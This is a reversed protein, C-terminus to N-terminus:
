LEYGITITLTKIKQYFDSSESYDYNYYYFWPETSYTRLGINLNKTRVGAGFGFGLSHGSDYENFDGTLMTLNYGLLPQVYFKMNENGFQVRFGINTSTRFYGWALQGYESSYNASNWDIEEGITFKVMKRGFLYEYGLGFGFKACGNQPDSFEGTPVVAALYVHQSFANENSTNGMKGGGAIQANSIFAMVVFIVSTFLKKNTRM